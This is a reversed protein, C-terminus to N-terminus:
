STSARNVDDLQISDLPCESWRTVTYMLDTCSLTWYSPGSNGSKGTKYHIQFRVAFRNKTDPVQDVHIDDVREVSSWFGRFTGTPKTASADIGEQVSRFDATTLTTEILVPDQSWEPSM